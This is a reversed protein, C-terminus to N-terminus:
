PATTSKRLQSLVVGAVVIFIGLIKQSTLAEQGLMAAGCITVIPIANTFVTLKTISIQKAAYSYLM